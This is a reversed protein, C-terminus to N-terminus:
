TASEGDTVALSDETSSPGTSEKAAPEEGAKVEGEASKEKVLGNVELASTQFKGFIGGNFIPLSDTITPGDDHGGAILSNTILAKNFDRNSLPQGDPGSMDVRMTGATITALTYEVGEFTQTQKM